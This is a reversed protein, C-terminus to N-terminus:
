YGAKVSYDEISIEEILVWCDIVYGFLAKRLLDNEKFVNKNTKDTSKNGAVNNIHNRAANMAKQSPSYKDDSKNIDVEVVEVADFNSDGLRANKDGMLKDLDHNDGTLIDKVIYALDKLDSDVGNGDHYIRLQVKAVTNNDQSGNENLLYKATYLINNIAKADNASFLSATKKASEATNLGDSFISSVTTTESNKQVIGISIDNNSSEQRHVVMDAIDKNKYIMKGIVDMISPIYEGPTHGYTLTLTTTFKQGMNMSHVVSSVYFLLGRDEIFVVEGPQMFENGAIVVSGQLINKRCKNLLISAYPACQSEPNSLFPVDVVGQSKFGYNRWMDYDIAIATVMGNGSSPFSNLGSPLTKPDFNNMVGQVQVYTYPPPNENISISIIQSRKIVYRTGSGLGYDDYTEDEIMHEYMEPVHSNGYIGPASLESNVTSSTDLSNFETANKIASYFLKVAIQREQIKSTLEEAAKFVDVITNIPLEVSLDGSPNKVIYDQSSIKQGTKTQLRSSIQSVVDTELTSANQTSLGDKGLVQSQIEKNVINFREINTFIDKSLNSQNKIDNFTNNILAENKSQDPNAQFLLNSIDTILGDTNSIFSFKGAEGTISVNSRIFSLADDDSDNSVKKGLVSCNLRIQDEIIEIRERLSDLQNGFFDSLFQPFVQIGLSQKLFMMRYFVSSPMRNYQPSRVRIHGQTDCFVELDLLSAVVKIKDFTSLFDDNYQKISDTLGENFALIDFDKDYNDDVIFLNKDENARVDYSMRRTLYNLKRRLDKRIAANSEANKQNLDSYINGSQNNDIIKARDKQIDAINKNISKGLETYESELQIYHTNPNSEGKGFKNNGGVLIMRRRLDSLKQLKANLDNTQLNIKGQQMVSKAFSQEDMVLNKFPIFNGWLSNSKALSNKLSNMYTYAADQRTETDSSVADPNQTVKFFNAFNYPIGTILLSLVNMIDHGAFPEAFTNSTGVNNPSNLLQSSGFQTFVGIGEKWRYVLGDPAYFTKTIRGTTHDISKDHVYNLPSVKEGVYPGNKHKVLSTKGSEGLLYKNEDLLELSDNGTSTKIEDFKSKFPTLPDFFAGNFSDVGPKFNIKGQKFYYSNDEGSVSVTFKGDSYNSGIKEVVGGFTHTGEKETVFQSRMMSWLLNPFTDGVYVSKEIQIPVNGSPNFLSSAANKFDNVTNNLNQLFGVGTFLDNVGTLLKSDFRSKTSMYISVTDMPQILLKGSFNFRLKRRTYNTNKNTTQFANRSNAELQLKSFLSTVLREFIDLESEPFLKKINSETGLKTNKSTDLGDYGLIEGGRLYESSVKVGGGLGGFGSDYTFIIEDGTRDVIARVRKSLLTDANVKFTIPSAKRAARNQNLQRQADNIAQLAGQMGFEFTKHNYISNSADAIAKEIDYETILMSEYPDVLSFDFRGGGLSTSTTTSISTFNTLEIVGTGQGIQSKFLNTADTIWTTYHNTTNFAYVRRLRDIVKNFSLSKSDSSDSSSFTDALTIIIPILQSDVQGFAESIKQIKSLKELAAIQTCKNQFLIQMARYYLKEEKDMFDPRFNEGISSLMKKKILITANPEQLLVEVKKSETNFPDRRLYGAESYRREESRDIQKSFDGLDLTRNSNEGLSFQDSLMDGLSDLFDSM